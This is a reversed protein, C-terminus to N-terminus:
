SIKNEFQLLFFICYFYHLQIVKCFQLELLNRLQQLEQRDAELRRHRLRRQWAPYAEEAWRHHGQQRVADLHVELHEAPDQLLGACSLLLNL